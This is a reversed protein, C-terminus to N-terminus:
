AMYCSRNKIELEDILGLEFAQRGTFVKGNAWENTKATSLKNRKHAVSETFEKYVQNVLDQMMQQEAPTTDVFPNSFNKFDGAKVPEYQINFHNILQKLKFRYPIVVGISGVWAAPSAIIHDAACAVWYAGSACVNEVFVVLPKPFEKKIESIEHFMVQSTGSAGGTAEIKILIGKIEPDKFFRKIQKLHYSSDMLVGRIEMYAVKTHPQLTKEYM